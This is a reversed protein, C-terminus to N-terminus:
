VFKTKFVFRYKKSFYTFADDIKKRDYHLGFVCSGSGSMISSLGMDIMEQKLSKVSPAIKFASSELRNFLFYNWDIFGKKELSKKLEFIRKEDPIYNYEMSSYVDKTSIHIEPFVLIIDSMEAKVKVEELIEGRGTGVCMMCDKLFFSVDSGLESAIDMVNSVRINYIDCLARLTSACDSSGGGLGAGAPINKEIEVYYGSKINFKDEFKKIAKFVLNDKEDIYPVNVNNKINIKIQSDLRKRISIIDSLAIRAFLTIINHYGDSRKSSVELFLNVKAPATITVM